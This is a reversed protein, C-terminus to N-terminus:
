RRCRPSCACSLSPSGKQKPQMTEHNTREYKVSLTSGAPTRCCLHIASSNIRVKAILVGFMRFVHTQETERVLASGQQPRGQFGAVAHTNIRTSHQKTAPSKVPTLKQRQDITAIPTAFKFLEIALLVDCKKQAGRRMNAQCALASQDTAAATHAPRVAVCVAIAATM